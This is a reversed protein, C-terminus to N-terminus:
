GDSEFIYVLLGELMVDISEQLHEPTMTDDSIAFYIAHLYNHVVGPKVKQVDKGALAILGAFAQQELAKFDHLEKSDVAAILTELEEHNNFFFVKDPESLISRIFAAVNQRMDAAPSAAIVAKAQDVFNQYIDWILQMMLSEKSDFHNYFSGKAIGAAKAIDDVSVRRMGHAVVLERAKAIIKKRQHTKELETLARPSM